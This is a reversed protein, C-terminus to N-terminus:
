TREQFPRIRKESKGLFRGRVPAFGNHQPAPDGEVVRLHDTLQCYRRTSGTFQRASRQELLLFGIEQLSPQAARLPSQCKIRAVGLGQREATRSSQPEPTQSMTFLRGFQEFLGLPIKTLGNVPVPGEGPGPHRQAARELVPAFVRLGKARRAIGELRVCIQGFRASGHVFQQEGCQRSTGEVLGPFHAFAPPEVVRFHPSEDLTLQGDETPRPVSRM